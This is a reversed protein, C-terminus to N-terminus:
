GESSKVSITGEMAEALRKCITLGLGTGNPNFDRNKNVMGFLKFLKKQNHVSIGIGTDEVEIKLYKDRNGRMFIEDKKEEELV